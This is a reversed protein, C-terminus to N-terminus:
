NIILRPESIGMCDYRVFYALSCDTPDVLHPGWPVGHGRSALHDAAYNAERYFHRIRLEGDRSVWDRFEMVELSHEHMINSSKDRIIAVAIQSDLQVEVKRYGAEWVRNLGELAGRIEARTISCAGLHMTYAILCNGYNDRIIGGTAAKGRIVSRDSNLTVWGTPGAQWAVEAMRRSNSDVLISGDREMARQVTERWRIIKFLRWTEVAFPCERLIHSVTEEPAACRHCSADLTMGRRTRVANKLLREKAALWIFYRIRNPGAWKWISKWRDSEEATESKCILAYVSKITFIDSKECGWVWDDEGRNPNPPTM